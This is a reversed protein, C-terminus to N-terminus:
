PSLLAQIETATLARNYVRVEDIAGSFNEVCINCQRSGIRFDNEPTDSDVINGNGPQSHVLVGNAYTKIWAGDYTVAIHTWSGIPPSYGTFIWNWAPSSNAIAWAIQGNYFSVEYEGEKNMITQAVGPGGNPKIWAAMTLGTSVILSSRDGVQM